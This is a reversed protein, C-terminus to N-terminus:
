AVDDIKERAPVQLTSYLKTGRRCHAARVWPPNVPDLANITHHFLKVIPEFGDARIPVEYCFIDAASIANMVLAAYETKLGARSVSAKVDFQGVMDQFTPPDPTDGFLDSIRLNRGQRQEILRAHMSRLEDALESAMKSRELIRQKRAELDPAFVYQAIVTTFFAVVVATGSTWLTQENM